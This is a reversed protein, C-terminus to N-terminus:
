SGTITITETKTSSDSFTGTEGSGTGGTIEEFDWKLTGSAAITDFAQNSTTLVLGSAPNEGQYVAIIKFQDGSPTGSVLTWINGGTANSCSLAINVTSSGSNTITFTCQGSTVPNSSLQVTPM